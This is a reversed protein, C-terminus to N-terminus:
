IFFLLIQKYLTAYNCALRPLRPNQFPAYWKTHLQVLFALIVIYERLM